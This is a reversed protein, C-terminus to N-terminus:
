PCINLYGFKSVDEPLGDMSYSATTQFKCFRENIITCSNKM